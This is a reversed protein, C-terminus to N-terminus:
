HFFDQEQSELVLLYCGTSWREGAMMTSVGGEGRPKGEKEGQFFACPRARTRPHVSSCSSATIYCCSLFVVVVVREKRNWSGYKLQATIALRHLTCCEHHLPLACRIFM